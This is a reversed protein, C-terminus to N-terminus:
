SAEDHDITRGKSPTSGDANEATQNMRKKLMDNIKRKTIWAYVFFCLTLFVLLPLLLIGVILLFLFQIPNLKKM